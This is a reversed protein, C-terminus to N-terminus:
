TNMAGCVPSRRIYGLQEPANACLMRADTNTPDAFIIINTVEAVWQYEGRDFDAKTMQLVKDTDGLYKM